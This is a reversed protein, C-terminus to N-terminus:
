CRKGKWKKLGTIKLKKELEKVQREAFIECAIIDDTHALAQEVAGTADLLRGKWYALNKMEIRM